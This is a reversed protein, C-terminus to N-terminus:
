GAARAKLSAICLALAGSRCPGSEHWDTAHRRVRAEWIVDKDTCEIQVRYLTGSENCGPVLSLAADLSSTYHRPYDDGSEFAALRPDDSPACAEQIEADLERSPETAQELKAILAQLDTM